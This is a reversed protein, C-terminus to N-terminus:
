LESASQTMMVWQVSFFALQLILSKYRSITVPEM